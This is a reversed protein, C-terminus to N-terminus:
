TEKMDETEEEKWRQIDTERWNKLAEIVFAEGTQANWHMQRWRDLTSKVSRSTKKKEPSGQLAEETWWSM